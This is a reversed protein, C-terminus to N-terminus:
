PRATKKVKGVKGGLETCNVKLLDGSLSKKEILQKTTDAIKKVIFINKGQPKM